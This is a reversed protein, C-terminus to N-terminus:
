LVRRLDDVHGHDLELRLCRYMKQAFVPACVSLSRPSRPCDLGCSTAGAVALQGSQFHAAHAHRTSFLAGCPCKDVGSAVRENTGCAGCTRGCQLRGEPTIPRWLAGHRSGSSCVRACAVCFEPSSATVDTTKITGTCRFLGVSRAGQPAPFGRVHGYSTATRDPMRWMWPPAAPPPYRRFWGPQM